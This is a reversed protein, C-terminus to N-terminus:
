IEKPSDEADSYPDQEIKAKRRQITRAAPAVHSKSAREALLFEMETQPCFKAEFAARLRDFDAPDEDGIVLTAATLGHKWANIRSRAKGTASKPGTSRQANARNAVLQKSTM